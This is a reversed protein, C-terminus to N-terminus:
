KIIRISRPIYTYEVIKSNWRKRTKAQIKCKCPKDTAYPLLPRKAYKRMIGIKENNRYRYYTRFKYIRGMWIPYGANYYDLPSIPPQISVIRGNEIVLNPSATEKSSLSAAISLKVKVVVSDNEADEAYGIIKCVYPLSTTKGIPILVMRKERGPIYPLRENCVNLDFRPRPIGSLYEQRLGGNVEILIKSYKPFNVMCKFWKAQTGNELSAKHNLTVLYKNGVTHPSLKPLRGVIIKNGHSKGQKRIKFRSVKDITEDVQEATHKLQKSEM